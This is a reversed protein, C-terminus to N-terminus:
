GKVKELYRGLERAKDAFPLKDMAALRDTEGLRALLVKIELLAEERAKRAERKEKADDTTEVTRHHRALDMALEELRKNEFSREADVSSGEVQKKYHRFKDVIKTTVEISLGTTVGIEEPKAIYYLELSTLGAKYLRDLAVKRVEPIQLLLSQVIVAERASRAGQTAFAEPMAAVLPEYADLLKQRAAGEVVVKLQASAAALASGFGELAAVLEVMALQEAMERVSQIAPECVSVWETKAQNAGVDIMFDRVHRVHGKALEM